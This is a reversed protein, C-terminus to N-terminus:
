PAAGDLPQRDVWRSDFVYEKGGAIRVRYGVGSAFRGRDVTDFRELVELATNNGDHFKTFGSEGPQLTRDAM